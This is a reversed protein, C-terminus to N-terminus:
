CIVSLCSSKNYSNTCQPVSSDVSVHMLFVHYLVL